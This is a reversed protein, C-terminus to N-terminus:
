KGLSLPPLVLSLDFFYGLLPPPGEFTVIACFFGKCGSYIHAWESYCGQIFHTKLDNGVPVCIQVDRRPHCAHLQLHYDCRSVSPHYSM